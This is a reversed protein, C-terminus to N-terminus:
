KNTASNSEFVISAYGVVSARDGTAWASTLYKLMRSSGCGLRSCSRMTAMIPGIGCANSYLRDAEREVLEENMSIVAKILEGDVKAAYDEPVYHSFDSSALILTKGIKEAAGAVADGLKIMTPLSQDLVCIPLIRVNPGFVYKIFPLQVEISHEYIHSMPDFEPFVRMVERASESDVEIGGIPTYWTGDPWVSVASGYGTHNPGIIIVLKPTIKTRTYGYSYSAVTGSYTYGAHPVVAGM